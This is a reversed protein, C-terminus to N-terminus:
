INQQKLPKKVEKIIQIHHEEIETTILQKDEQILYSHKKLIEEFRDDIEDVIKIENAFLRLAKLDINNEHLKVILRADLLEQNAQQKLTEIKALDDKLKKEILIKEEQWKNFAHLEERSPQKSKVKAVEKKIRSSLEEKTLTVIDNGKKIVKEKKISM